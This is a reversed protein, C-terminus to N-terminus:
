LMREADFRSRRLSAVIKRLQPRLKRNAPDRLLEQTDAMAQDIDALAKALLNREGEMGAMRGRIFFGAVLAPRNCRHLFAPCYPPRASGRSQPRSLRNTPPDIQCM